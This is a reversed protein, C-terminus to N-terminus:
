KCNACLKAEPCAKLREPGINKNCKECKGYKNKKIKELASNVDLLKLELSHEVSLLKEYEQFEDAEEELDGGNFKPYRTDWDGKPKTDEKAFGKLENELSEKEKELKQKLESLLKKNM